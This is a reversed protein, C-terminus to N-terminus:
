AAIREGFIARGIRVMTAGEEIAMEFDETMGMSLTPAPGFAGKLETFLKSLTRFAERTTKEEVDNPAIGMLGELQLAGFRGFEEVFRRAEDLSAGGKAADTSIKVEILCRQRKGAERAARDIADALRPRDVSQIVDFLEVAKKVKNTQLQGIFHRNLQSAQTLGSWKGIAEQVRNEGIHHIGLRMADIIVPVEVTKTAALLTIASADRHSRRAAEVIRKHISDIRDKLNLIAQM